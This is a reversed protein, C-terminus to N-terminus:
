GTVQPTGRKIEAKMVGPPRLLSQGRALSAEVYGPHLIGAQGLATLLNAYQWWELEISDFYIHCHGPTSSAVVRCPIDIDLAPRHKGDECLSSVLNAPHSVDPKNLPGGREYSGVAEAMKETMREAVVLPDLVPNYYTKRKSM